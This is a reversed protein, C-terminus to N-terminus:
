AAYPNDLVRFFQALDKDLDSAGNSAISWDAEYKRSQCLKALKELEPRTFYTM